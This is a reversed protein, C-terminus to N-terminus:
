CLCNFDALSPKLTNVINPRQKIQFSTGTDHGRQDLYLSGLTVGCVTGRNKTTGPM